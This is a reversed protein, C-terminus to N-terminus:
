VMQLSGNRRDIARCGRPGILDFDTPSLALCRYKMYNRWIIGNHLSPQPGLVSLHEQGQPQFQNVLVAKMDRGGLPISSPLCIGCMVKM